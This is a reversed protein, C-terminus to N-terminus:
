DPRFFGHRRIVVELVSGQSIAKSRRRLKFHFREVVTKGKSKGKRSSNSTSIIVLRSEDGNGACVQWSILGSDPFFIGVGVKGLAAAVTQAHWIDQELLPVTCLGACSLIRQSFVFGALGSQMAAVFQIPDEIVLLIPTESYRFNSNGYVTLLKLTSQVTQHPMTFSCVREGPDVRTKTLSCVGPALAPLGYTGARLILICAKLQAKNATSREAAFANRTCQDM